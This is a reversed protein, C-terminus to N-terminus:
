EFEGEYQKLEEKLATNVQILEILNSPLSCVWGLIMLGIKVLLFIKNLYNSM